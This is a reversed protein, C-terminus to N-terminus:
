FGCSFCHSRLVCADVAKSGARIDILTNKCADLVKSGARFVNCSLNLRNLIKSGAGFM